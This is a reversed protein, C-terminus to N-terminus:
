VNQNQSILSAYPHNQGKLDIKVQDKMQLILDKLKPFGFSQINFDFSVKKKLYQPMQALSVGSEQEKLISILAQKIIKLQREKESDLADHGFNIVNKDLDDINCIKNTWILLTKHYRLLDDTVTQQVMHALRGLSLAKLLDPGCTKVFQACGYRGGPIAM